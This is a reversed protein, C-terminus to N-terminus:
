TEPREAPDRSPKAERDADHQGSIPQAAPTAKSPSSTASQRTPKPHVQTPSPSPKRRTWPTQAHNRGCSKKLWKPRRNVTFEFSAGCVHCYTQLTVAMREQGGANEYVEIDLVEYTQGKFEFREGIRARGLNAVTYTEVKIM